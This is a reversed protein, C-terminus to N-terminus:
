ILLEGDDDIDLSVFPLFNGDVENWNTFHCLNLDFKRENIRILEGDIIAQSDTCFGWIEAQWIRIPLNVGEGVIDPFLLNHQNKVSATPSRRAHFLKALQLFIVFRKFCLSCFDYRYVNREFNGTFISSQL